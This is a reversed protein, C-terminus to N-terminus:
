HFSQVPVRISPGSFAHVKQMIKDVLVPIARRVEPTCEECFTETDRGEITYLTVAKPLPIDLGRGIFLTNQLTLTHLSVPASPLPSPFLPLVRIHGPPVNGSRAVDVLLAEDFGSIALLLDLGGTPLERCPVSEPGIRRKLDRVVYIGAGDDSVFTNGLGVIIEGM